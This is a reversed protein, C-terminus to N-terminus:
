RGSWRALLARARRAVPRDVMRGRVQLAGHGASRARDYAEVVERALSLEEVGPQFVSRVVAIQRPHVIMKGAYGMRLARECVARLGEDDDLRAYVGDIPPLVGLRRSEVTLTGRLQWILEADDPDAVTILGLDLALDFTGIAFRVVSAVDALQPLAGFGAATEIQPILRKAGAAEVLRLVDPDEAMPVVAGEVAKWDVAAVDADREAPDANVRVWVRPGEATRPADLWKPISRRATEKSADPVSDELDLIVAHSESSLARAVKRGDHAPVFLYTISWDDDKM